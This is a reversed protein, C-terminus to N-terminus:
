TKEHENRFWKRVTPLFAFSLFLPAQPPVNGGPGCLYLNGEKEHILDYVLRNAALVNPRVLPKLAVFIWMKLGVDVWFNESNIYNWTGVHELWLVLFLQDM